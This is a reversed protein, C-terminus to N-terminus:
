RINKKTTTLSRIRLELSTFLRHHYDIHEENDMKNMVLRHLQKSLDITVTDMLNM